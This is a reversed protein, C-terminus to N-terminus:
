EDKLFEKNKDIDQEILRRLYVARPMKKKKSIWDLYTVIRPSVFFNFRVDTQDKADALAMKLVQKLNDITYELHQIHTNTQGILIPSDQGNTYLAIVPKEHHVAIALEFGTGIEPKTVEAIVIDSQKIWNTMKKVYDEHMEPTEKLVDDLKKTVSHRTVVDYGLEEITNVIREYHTKDGNKMENGILSGFFHVKM